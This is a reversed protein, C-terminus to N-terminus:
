AQVAATAPWSRRRCTGRHGLHASLLVAVRRRSDPAAGARRGCVDDEAGEGGGEEVKWGGCAVALGCQAGYILPQTTTPNFIGYALMLAQIVANYLIFKRGAVFLRPRWPFIQMRDAYRVERGVSVNGQLCEPVPICSCGHTLASPLTIDICAERDVAEGAPRSAGNCRCHAPM